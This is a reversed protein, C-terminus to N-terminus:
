SLRSLGSSRVSWTRLSMPASNRLAVRKLVLGQLFADNLAPLKEGKVETLSISFEAEKGRLEEVQYDDPFTATVVGSEGAKM